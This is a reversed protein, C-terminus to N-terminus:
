KKKDLLTDISKQVYTPQYIDDDDMMIVTKYTSLKVLKNRKAGITQKNTDYIYKLKIPKISDKIYDLTEKTYPEKSDDM